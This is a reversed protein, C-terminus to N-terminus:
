VLATGGMVAMEKPAELAQYQPPMGAIFKAALEEPGAENQLEPDDLQRKATAQEDINILFIAAGTAAGIVVICFYSLVGAWM